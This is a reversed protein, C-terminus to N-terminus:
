CFPYPLKSNQKPWDSRIKNLFPSVLQEYDDISKESWIIKHRHNPVRPATVLLDQVATPVVPITLSSVIVDHHSDVGPEDKSCVIDVLKESSEASKPVAIIDINSDYQGEGLFHHYTKHDFTITTLDFTSLFDNFVNVRNKNNLNVNCDGRLYIMCDPYKDKLDLITTRLLIIQEIFETEQGSTPFYLAIHVSVSAGLPSYIIPLFSTTTVPFVTVHADHELKWIALTGGYTKNKALPLEPDYKDESNLFFNYNSIFYKMLDHIDHSFINPESIFMFDPQLLDAFNKLNLHNRRIGEINWTLCMLLIRTTKIEIDTMLLLLHLM